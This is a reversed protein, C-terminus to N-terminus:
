SFPLGKASIVLRTIHTCLPREPCADNGACGVAPCSNEHMMNIGTGQTDLFVFHTSVRTRLLHRGVAAFRRLSCVTELRKAIGQSVAGLPPSGSVDNPTFYVGVFRVM